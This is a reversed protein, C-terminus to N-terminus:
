LDFTPLSRRSFPMRLSKEPFSELNEKKFYGSIGATRLLVAPIGCSLATKRQEWLLTEKLFFFLGTDKCSSGMKRLSCALHFDIKLKCSSGPSGYINM